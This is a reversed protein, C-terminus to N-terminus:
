RSRILVAQKPEYNFQQNQLYYFKFLPLIGWGDIRVSDRVTLGHCREPRFNGPRWQVYRLVKYFGIYFDDSVATDPVRSRLSLRGEIAICILRPLFKQRPLADREVRGM